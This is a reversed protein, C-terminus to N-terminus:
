RWFAVWDLLDAFKQLLFLTGAGDNTLLDAGLALLTLVALVLAIRNTM